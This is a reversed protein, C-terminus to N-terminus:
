ACILAGDSLVAARWPWWAKFLYSRGYRRAGIKAPIFTSLWVASIESKVQALAVEM